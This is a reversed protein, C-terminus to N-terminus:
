SNRGTPIANPKVVNIATEVTSVQDKGVMIWVADCDGVSWTQGALGVKISGNSICYSALRPSIAIAEYNWADTTRLTYNYRGIGNKTGVMWDLGTPGTYVRERLTEYLTVKLGPRRWDNQALKCRQGLIAFGPLGGPNNMCQAARRLGIMSGDGAVNTFQGWVETGVSNLSVQGHCIESSQSTGIGCRRLGEMKTPTASGESDRRATHLITRLTQPLPEEINCRLSSVGKVPPGETHTRETVTYFQKPVPISVPQAIPEITNTSLLFTSPSAEDDEAVKFTVGELEVSAVKTEPATFKFDTRCFMQHLTGRGEM